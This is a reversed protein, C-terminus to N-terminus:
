KQEISYIRSSLSDYDNELVKVMLKETAEKIDAKPESDYNMSQSSIKLNKISVNNLFVALRKAYEDGHDPADKENRGIYSISFDCIMKYERKDLTFDLEWHADTVLTKELQASQRLDKWNREEREISFHSLDTYFTNTSDYNRSLTTLMDVIKVTGASEVLFDSFNTIM